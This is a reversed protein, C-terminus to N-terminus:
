ASFSQVLLEAYAGERGDFNPFPPEHWGARQPFPECIRPRSSPLLPSSELLPSARLLLLEAPKSACEFQFVTCIDYELDFPWALWGRFPPLGPGPGVRGTTSFKFSISRSCIQAKLRM